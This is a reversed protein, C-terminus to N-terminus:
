KAVKLSEKYKFFLLKRKFQQHGKLSDFFLRKRRSGTSWRAIGSGVFSNKHWGTLGALMRQGNKWTSATHEMSPNRNYVNQIGSQLFCGRYSCYLSIGSWCLHQQTQPLPFTFSLTLDLCRPLLIPFRHCHFPHGLLCPFPPLCSSDQCSPLCGFGCELKYKLSRCNCCPSNYQIRTHATCTLM